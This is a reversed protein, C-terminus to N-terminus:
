KPPILADIAGGQWLMPIRLKREGPTRPKTPQYVLLKTNALWELNNSAVPITAVLRYLDPKSTLLQRLRQAMPPDSRARPEEVVIFDPDLEALRALIAVDSTEYEVYGHSPDSRSGYLIKDARVLWLRRERDQTRLEYVITGSFHGDFLVIGPGASHTLAYDAAASYGRVWPVPQKLSWVMTGGVIVAGAVWRWRSFLGAVDAAWVCWAPIWFIAHRSEQEALPAFFLLTALTLSWYPASKARNIKRFSLALGIVAAVCAVHGLQAWLTALLYTYQEFRNARVTTADTGQSAASAQVGGIEWVALAYVPALIAIVCLGAVIVSRKALLDWRRAFAIRFGFALVLLVADYRHLGALICGVAMLVLDRRRMAQLYRELHLMAMLVFALTPVELMVNRSFFVIERTFAFTLTAIVAVFRGHTLFALRYLFTCALLCYAIALWRGTEFNRGFALMAAGEATYFGPPWVILGLAPYQAYYREAYSKPHWIGGDAIADAVFIGTMVHRTEDGNFFPETPEAMLVHMMLVTLLILPLAARSM